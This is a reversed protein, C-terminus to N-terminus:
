NALFGQISGSVETSAGDAIAVLRVDANAPIILYPRFELIGASNNSATVDEVERFVNGVTKVQLAVDAFAATKEIVSGRFGTVIWYDTSSLSTSAKESQNRGAAITLHIKTTDNPKGATLATNEYVFIQGVFNVASNNYLRTSRNLPTTLPVRTQGLLTVSQSVFTRNNGSMTHGEIVVQKGTDTADNSSVSDISNVNDAVYTENEQDQGTFWLTAASTGVNPNRGFKLLNKAKNAVSVSVGYDALIRNLADAILPDSDIPNSQSIPIAVGSEISRINVPTQAQQLVKDLLDKAM